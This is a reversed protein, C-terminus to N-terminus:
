LLWEPKVFGRVQQWCEHADNGTLIAVGDQDFSITKRDGFQFPFHTLTSANRTMLTQRMILTNGELKMSLTLDHYFDWHFVNAGDHLTQGYHFRNVSARSSETSVIRKAHQIEIIIRATPSIGDRYSVNQHLRHSINFSKM